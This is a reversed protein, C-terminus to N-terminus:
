LAEQKPYINGRLGCYTGAGAAWLGSIGGAVGNVTPCRGSCGGEELDLDWKGKQYFVKVAKVDRYDRGRVRRTV